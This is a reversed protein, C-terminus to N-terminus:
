RINQRRAPSPVSWSNALKPLLGSALMDNLMQNIQRNADEPLLYRQRALRERGAGCRLLLGLHEPITRRDFIREAALSQRSQARSCSRHVKSMDVPASRSRRRYQGQRQRARRSRIDTIVANRRDAPDIERRGDRQNARM